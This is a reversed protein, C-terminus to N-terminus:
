CFPFRPCFGKLSFNLASIDISETIFRSHANNTMLEVLEVINNEAEQKRADSLLQEKTMRNVGTKIFNRLENEVSPSLNFNNSKARREASEILRKLLEEKM